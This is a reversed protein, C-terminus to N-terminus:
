EIALAAAPEGMYRTVVDRLRSRARFLVRDFHADSLGMAVCLDSKDRDELYFDRLLERDRAVRLRGIWRRMDQIQRVREYIEPPGPDNSERADITDTDVDTRRRWGRREQARAMNEVQQRLFGRWAAPERVEGRRLRRLVSIWLDQNADEALDYSSLRALLWRGTREVYRRVLEIEARYDGLTIAQLLEADTLLATRTEDCM